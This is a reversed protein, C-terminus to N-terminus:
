GLSVAYHAIRLISTTITGTTLGSIAIPSAPVDIQALFVYTAAGTTNSGTLYTVTNGVSTVTPTSASFGSGTLSLTLQYQGPVLIDIGYPSTFLTVPVGGTNVISTGLWNSTTITGLGSVKASTATAHATLDLQPTILEVEFEVHLEGVAATTSQGTTAVFVNGVDYLIIDQSNKLKGNRIFRQNFKALDAKDCTYSFSEWAPGRVANHYAMIQTKTTPASDAADFDVAIIVAGAITTPSTSEYVYKLKTFKYSEYGTSMTSLWPFSLPLGPNIGFEQSTFLVSGNVEAIYEKHCIRVRGDGNNKPMSFRPKTFRQIIGKAVPANVKTMGNQSVKSNKPLQAKSKNM